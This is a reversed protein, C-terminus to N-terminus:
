KASPMLVNTNVTSHPLLAQRMSILNENGKTEYDTTITIEKGATLKIPKEDVM